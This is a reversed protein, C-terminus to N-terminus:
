NALILSYIASVDGANVSGDHNIDLNPSNNGALIASYLESVDGANVQGDGNLDGQPKDDEIGYAFTVKYNAGDNNLYYMQSNACGEAWFSLTYTEGDQLMYDRLLEVPKGCSWNGFDDFQVPIDNMYLGNGDTTQITYLLRIYDFKGEAFVYAEDVTMQTLPGNDVINIPEFPEGKQVWPYKQEGPTLTVAISIGTIDPDKPENMTFYFVFNDNDRGFFYYKGNQDILQYMVRLVYDGPELDASILRQENMTSKYTNTRSSVLTNLENCDIRGWGVSSGDPDTTPYIKYQLSADVIEVGDSLDYYISFFNIALMDLSGPMETNDRTGDGNYRYQPYNGTYLILEATGDKLWKVGSDGGGKKLGFMIKYNEGGNNLLIENGNNLASVYLELAYNGSEDVEEALDKNIELGWSGGAIYSLPISLWNEASPTKGQKYMAVHLTVDSVNKTDANNLFVDFSNVVLSSAQGYGTFDGVPFGSTPLEIAMEGDPTNLTLKAGTFEAANTQWAVLTVVFFLILRLSKKM